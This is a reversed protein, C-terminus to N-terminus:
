LPSHEALIRRVEGIVEPREQCLHGSAVVKESIVGDIHASDYRVLGDTRDAPPSERRVAIISHVKIAPLIPIRSLGTLIPSGWELEDISSPIAKRFHDRFFDPENCSVLRHHAAQLPDAVRVLRAGIHQIAGRDFHSGRHPTAIFIVRRVEPRAKFLLGGRFLDIDDKQGALESFPRDSVVRWLTDGADAAMMKSLLGGMSHGVIVMRDFATDSRDPDLRSRADDLNRRLLHASYPVPDGTSYGFTWFQFRTNIEPDGELAVIMRHWSSTNSWLGHIFVVPIKGREYPNLLSLGTPEYRLLEMMSIPADGQARCISAKISALTLFLIVLPISQRIMHPNGRGCLYPFYHPNYGYLM